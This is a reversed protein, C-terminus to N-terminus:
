FQHALQEKDNKKYWSVLKAKLKSVLKPNSTALDTQEYPDTSLNYLEAMSGESNTFLKWNKHRVALQLSRDPAAPFNYRQNRGYEWFLDRKREYSRKGILAKSINEGDIQYKDTVKAGAIKCIAPLLDVSAIVSTSDVQGGKVRAPWRVIFPMLIGGEYLSNKVGRLNNTRLRDFGPSPGNDSTFIVLTNEDLGLEKLGAMLRGIQKDYDKLVHELTPLKAWQPKKEQTAEDSVWPTHVDDPWLNVFCPKGSNRKLFDLTKDVFYATRDWRKVSDEPSWIWDTATLVSDAQPSEWTSVAEDFGYQQIAPANDVDRGGGMHWKGIHATSYGSAKLASAMTPATTQLFDSQECEANFKRNNLFTNINWRLPYMGTTIAVRSPSCVPAGSYYRTFRKGETALRDINPTNQVKGGNISIDGFGMDDTYIIIINPRSSRTSQAKLQIGSVLLLAVLLFKNM